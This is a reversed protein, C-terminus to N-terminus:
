SIGWTEYTAKMEAYDREGQIYENDQQQMQDDIYHPNDSIDSLRTLGKSVAIQEAEKDSHVYCGLGRNFYGNISYHTGCSDSWSANTRAILAVQKRIAKRGTSSTLYDPAAGLKFLEEFVEGTPNGAEDLVIYDHLPM